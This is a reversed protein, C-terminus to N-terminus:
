KKKKIRTRCCFATPPIVFFFGRFTKKKVWESAKESMLKDRAHNFTKIHDVVTSHRNVNSLLAFDVEEPKESGKM